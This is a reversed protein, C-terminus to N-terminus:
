QLKRVADRLSALSYPKQMFGTVAEGAFKRAVERESYGSAIVVKVGPEISRL